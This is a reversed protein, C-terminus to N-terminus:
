LIQMLLVVLGLFRALFSPRKQRLPGSVDILAKDDSFSLIPNVNEDDDDDSFLSAALSTEEETANELKELYGKIFEPLVGWMVGDM